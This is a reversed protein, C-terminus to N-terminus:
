VQYEAGILLRLKKLSWCEIDANKATLIANKTFGNSSVIIGKQIGTNRLKTQFAEIVPQDVPKKWDKCEISIKFQHHGDDYNLLIDHERPNGATKDTLLANSQITIHKDTILKEIKAVLKNFIDGKRPM